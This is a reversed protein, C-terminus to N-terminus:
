FQQGLQFQLTQTQDGDKANLPKALVLKLPGFPSFWSIGVGTSYRLTGLSLKESEGYVNGADVFASLRFQSSNKILPVPIFVEANGVIRRTGGVAFDQGTTPDFDRPGIAGNDFGRVSNVGGVYFNKFFPYQKGGYSDAYGLEGNLMLTVDKTVDKYWAHKYELKYYQLDLGPVTTEATLRQLVGKNPFLTNDRSDHTWGLALQLSNSDCGSTNGCFDLYQKPSNDSLEIKTIDATLGASFFDKEGLPLGFRVGAGYSSSNYTGIDLSRTNV